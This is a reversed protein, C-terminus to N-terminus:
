EGVTLGLLRRAVAEDNPQYSGAQVQDRLQNVLGARVDPAAKVLGFMRSVATARDSLVLGDAPASGVDDTGSTAAADSAPGTSGGRVGQSRGGYLRMLESQIRDVNM